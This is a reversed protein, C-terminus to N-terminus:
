ILQDDIKQYTPLKFVSWGDTAWYMYFFLYPAEFAPDTYDAVLWEGPSGGVDDTQLYHAEGEVAEGDKTPSKGHKDKYGTNLVKNRWGWERFCVIEIEFSVEWYSKGDSDKKVTPSIKRMKAGYPRISVGGIKIKSENVTDLMLMCNHPDFRNWSYTKRIVILLNNRTIMIPPDFRYGASNKVVKSPELWKDANTYSYEGAEQYPVYSYQIDEIENDPDNTTDSPGDPKSWVVDVFWIFRNEDQLTPTISTVQVTSDQPHTSHLVPIGTAGCINPIPETIDDTQVIYSHTYTNGDKSFSGTRGKVRENVSVIAM